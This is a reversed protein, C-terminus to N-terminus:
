IDTIQFIGPKLDRKKLIYEYINGSKPCDSGLRSESYGRERPGQERGYFVRIRPNKLMKAFRTHRKRMTADKGARIRWGKERRFREKVGM